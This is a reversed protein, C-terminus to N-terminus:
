LVAIRVSEPNSMQHSKEQPIAKAREILAIEILRKFHQSYSTPPRSSASMIPLLHSVAATPQPHRLPEGQPDEFM